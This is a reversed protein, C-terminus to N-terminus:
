NFPRPASRGCALIGDWLRYYAGRVSDLLGLAQLSRKLASRGFRRMQWASFPLRQRRQEARRLYSLAAEYDSHPAAPKASERSKRFIAQVFENGRLLEFGSRGALAELTTLSFHYTHANQLLRLFDMQYDGGLHKIGPVELYLAGDGALTRRILALERAPDLLHELVHSYIILDPKRTFSVEALTGAEIPLGHRQRGFQTYERDVDVGRVVCGRDRFYGLVGGASCGVEFVSVGRLDQPLVGLKMLRAFIRRGRKYQSRYRDESPREVGDYLKRYELNYFERYSAENMRPNTQALGCCRCIVAPMWLGYRDKGALPEFESSGCLECPVKEFQYIGREVKREIRAKTRLQLSNLSLIPRGDYEFRQALM